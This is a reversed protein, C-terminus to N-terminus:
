MLSTCNHAYLVRASGTLLVAPVPVALLTRLSSLLQERQAASCRKRSRVLQWPRRMMGSGLMGAQLCEGVQLLVNFLRAVLLHCLQKVRTLRQLQLAEHINLAVCAM